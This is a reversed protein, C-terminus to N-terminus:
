LTYHVAVGRDGVAWVDNPGAGWISRLTETTGSAITSWRGGDWHLITGAEGVAWVDNASSGWVGYLASLSGTLVSTWATGNWRRAASRGVLWVDNAGSGWIGFYASSGAAPEAAWATGNFRYVGAGVARVDTASSGWVAYLEQGMPIGTSSDSWRTGDFRAAAGVGVAFVNGPGQAWMAVLELAPLPMSQALTAGTGQLFIGLGRKASGNTPITLGSVFVASGSGTVGRLILPYPTLAWASGNWRALTRAAVAVVSNGASGWIGTFTESTRTPVVTWRGPVTGSGTGADATVGGDTTSPGGPIPDFGVVRGISRGAPPM